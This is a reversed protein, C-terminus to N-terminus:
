DLLRQVADRLERLLGPGVVLAVLVCDRLREAHLPESAGGGGGGGPRGGGGGGGRPRPWGTAGTAHAAGSKRGAASSTNAGMSLSHSAARSSAPSEISVIARSTRFCGEVTDYQTLLCPSTDACAM